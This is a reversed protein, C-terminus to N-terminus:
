AKVAKDERLFYVYIVIFIMLLIFMLMAIASAMGFNLANIAENWSYLALVFTSKAPGGETMVYIQDFIKFDWITSLIFLILLLPKLMPLTIRTLKQWGNAGDIEAAEYLTHPITQFGALLSVAIFPFSQWVIMLFIVFFATLSTNFWAYGDFTNLGISTLFYNIVGYQDNFMWKWVIGGAVAPFVWPILIVVGLIKSGKFRTNLLLAVSLGVLLTGGVCSLGFLVTNRTVTWFFPDSLTERYNSFGAWEAEGTIISYMDYHQFSLFFTYLLPYITLGMILIIAPLLLLWPLWKSKM